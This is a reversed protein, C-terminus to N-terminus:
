AGCRVYLSLRRWCAPHGADFVAVSQLRNCWGPGGLADGGKTTGGEAAGMVMGETGGVMGTGTGIESGGMSQRAASIMAKAAITAMEAASRKGGTGSVVGVQGKTQWGIGEVGIVGRTVRVATIGAQREISRGRRPGVGIGIEATRDSSSREGATMGGALSMQQQKGGMSNGGKKKRTISKTNRTNITGAAAGAATVAEAAATASQGAKAAAAAAAANVAAQGTRSRSMGGGGAGKVTGMGAAKGSRSSCLSSSSSCPSKRIIM